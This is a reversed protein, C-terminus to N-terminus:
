LCMVKKYFMTEFFEDESTRKSDYEKKMNLAEHFIARKYYRYKTYDITVINEFEFIFKLFEFEKNKINTDESGNFLKKFSNIISEHNNEKFSNLVNEKLINKNM